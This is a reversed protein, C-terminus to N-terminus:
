DKIQNITPSYADHGQRRPIYKFIFNKNMVNYTESVSEVHKTLGHRDRSITWLHIMLARTLQVM